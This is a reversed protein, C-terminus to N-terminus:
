AVALGFLQVASNQGLAACVPPQRWILTIKIILAQKYAQLNHSFGILNTDNLRTAEVRCHTTNNHKTTTGGWVCEIRGRTWKYTTENFGIQALEQRSLETNSKLQTKFGHSLVIRRNKPCGYAADGFFSGNGYVNIMLRRFTPSDAGHNDTVACNQICLIGVVPWYETIAHLKIFGTYITGKKSVAKRDTTVGTSDVIHVSEGHKVMLAKIRGHLTQVAKIFYLPPIRQLTKGVWSHDIFFGFTGKSARETDRYAWCKHRRFAHAAAYEWPEAKPKKGRKKKDWPNGLQQCVERCLEYEARDNSTAKHYRKWYGKVRKHKKKKTVVPKVEQIRYSKQLM